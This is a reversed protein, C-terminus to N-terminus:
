QDEKNTEQMISAEINLLQEIQGQQKDILQQQEEINSSQQANIKTLTSVVSQMELLEQSPQYIAVLVFQRVEPTFKPLLSELWTQARLRNQYPTNKGQSLLVKKFLEAKKSGLTDIRKKRQPWSLSDTSSWYTLWYEFQCSDAPSTNQWTCLAKNSSLSPQNAKGPLKELLTCGSILWCVLGLTFFKLKM